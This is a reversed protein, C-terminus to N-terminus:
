SVKSLPKPTSLHIGGGFHVVNPLLARSPHLVSQSNVFMMSAKEILDELSSYNKGFYKKILLQQSNFLRPFYYFNMFLYSFLKTLSQRFIPTLLTPFLLESDLLIHSPSGIFQYSYSAGDYSLIQIIPCDFKESFAFMASPLLETLVLDFSGANNKLFAQVEHHQLQEEVVDYSGKIANEILETISLQVLENMNMRRNWTEHCFHFDIETLNTFSSSRMPNTTFVNVDHERLSLEKWLPQFVIQHSYAPTPVIGLIRASFTPTSVCLLHLLICCLMILLM